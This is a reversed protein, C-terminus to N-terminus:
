GEQSDTASASWLIQAVSDLTGKIYMKFGSTFLILCMGTGSEHICQINNVNILTPVEKYTWTDSVSYYKDKELSVVKVIVVM